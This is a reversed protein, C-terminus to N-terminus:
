GDATVARRNCALAFVVCGAILWRGHGSQPSPRRGGLAEQVSVGLAGRAPVMVALLSAGVGLTVALVSPVVAIEFEGNLRQNWSDYLPHLALAAGLGVIVGVVSGLAAISATSTLWACSLAGGGAGNARLLGIERRRRRFGVAFAAAIVLGVVILGFGGVMFVAVVEFGDGSTVDAVAAVNFGQQQLSTQMAAADIPNVLMSAQAQGGTPPPIAQSWTIVAPVTLHEAIAVISTVALTGWPLDLTEGVECGTLEQLRPTIACQDQAAPPMGSMGVLMGTALGWPSTPTFEGALGLHLVALNMGRVKLEAREHRFTTWTTSEPISTRLKFLTAPNMEGLGDVRLSASGFFEACTEEHTPTVTRVLSAGGVLAAVPVAVLLVLLATRGPHRLYSRRETRLLTRLASM